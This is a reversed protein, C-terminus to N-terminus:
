KLRKDREEDPVKDKILIDTRISTPTTQVCAITVMRTGNLVFQKRHGIDVSITRRYPFWEPVHYEYLSPYRVKEKPDVWFLKYKNFGNEIVFRDDCRKINSLGDALWYGFGLAVPEPSRRHNDRIDDHFCTKTETVRFGAYESSYTKTVDGLLFMPIQTEVLKELFAKVADGDKKIVVLLGDDSIFRHSRNDNYHPLGVGCEEWGDSVSHKIIIQPSGGSNLGLAIASCVPTIDTKDDEKSLRDFLRVVRGVLASADAL